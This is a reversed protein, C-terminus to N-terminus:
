SDNNEAGETSQVAGAKAATMLSDFRAGQQPNAMNIFAVKGALRQLDEESAPKRGTAINHLEARVKYREKRPVNTHKNIVLGTVPMRGGDRFVGTKRMNIRFGNSNVVNMVLPIISPLARNDKSSFVLDDAYRTYVAHHKRALGMLAFDMNRVVLNSLAPSTPAGQPTVGNLTCLSSIFNITFLEEAKLLPVFATNLKDIGINDFFKSIDMKVVVKAGVHREANTKISKGHIFGHACPTAWGRYLMRNMIRRQVGKLDDDPANIWRQSGDRKTLPFRNYHSSIDAMLSTLLEGEVGLVSAIIDVPNVLEDLGMYYESSANFRFKYVEGRNHEWIDTASVMLVNKSALKRLHEMEQAFADINCRVRVIKGELLLELLQGFAKENINRGPLVPGHRAQIFSVIPIDSQDKAVLEVPLEGFQRSLQNLM